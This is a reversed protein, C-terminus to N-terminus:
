SGDSRRERADQWADVCVDVILGVLALEQAETLLRIDIAGAITETVWKKKEPGTSGKGPLKPFLHEAAMVLAQIKRFLGKTQLTKLLSPMKKELTHSGLAWSPM